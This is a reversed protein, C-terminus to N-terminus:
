DAMWYAKQRAKRLELHIDTLDALYSESCHASMEVLLWGRWDVLHAVLLDAM